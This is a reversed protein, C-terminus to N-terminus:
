QSNAAELLTDLDTINDQALRSAVILFQEFLLFNECWEADATQPLSKNWAHAFKPADRSLRRWRDMAYPPHPGPGAIAEFRQVESTERASRAQAHQKILEAIEDILAGSVAISTASPQPPESEGLMPGVGDPPLGEDIWQSRVRDVLYHYDVQPLKLTGDLADPLRNRIERMAHAILHVRAPFGADHAMRVAARYLPALHPAVREFWSHLENRESTWWAELAEPLQAPPFAAEVLTDSSEGAPM